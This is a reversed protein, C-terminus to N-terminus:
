LRIFINTTEKSKSGSGGNMQEDEQLVFVGQFEVCPFMWDAAGRKRLDCTEDTRCKCPNPKKRPSPYAARFPLVYGDRTIQNNEELQQSVHPKM